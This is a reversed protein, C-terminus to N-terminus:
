IHYVIAYEFLGLFGLVFCFPLHVFYRSPSEWCLHNGNITMQLVGEFNKELGVKIKNNNVVELMVKGDCTWINHFEFEERARKLAEMRMKTLSETISVTKRKNEKWKQFSYKRNQTKQKWYLLGSKVRKRLQYSTRRIM